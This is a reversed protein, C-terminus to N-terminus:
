NYTKWFLIFKYIHTVTVVGVLLADINLFYQFGSLLTVAGHAIM